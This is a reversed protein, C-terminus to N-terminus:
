RATLWRGGFKFDLVPTKTDVLAAAESTDFLPGVRVPHFANVPWLVLGIPIGFVGAALRFGGLVIYTGWNYPFGVIGTAIKAGTSMDPEMNMRLTDYATYPAVLADLPGMLINETSQKLLTPQALAPRAASVAGLAVLACVLSRIARSPM